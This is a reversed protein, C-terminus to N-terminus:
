VLKSILIDDLRIYHIPSFLPVQNMNVKNLLARIRFSKDKSTEGISIKMAKMTYAIHSSQEKGLLRVQRQNSSHLQNFLDEDRLLCYQLLLLNKIELQAMPYRKMGINNLLNNLWRAAEDYKDVYFCGLARYVYYTIYQPVDNENPEYEEFQLKNEAYLDHDSEMRLARSLKTLLFIPPFTFLEYNSLFRAARENIEEYYKETKRFIKYSHYHQLRLFEFVIKQHYYNSDLSYTDFIQQVNALMDEIPEEDSDLEIHDDSEVFLRHFILMNCKYVYLRHSQYLKSINNLEKIIISLEMKISNEGSLFYSGFKKFYEALLDEAKDFALMFAIHKNYLQKYTYHDPHNIHIRKLIKYVFTLENSLDYDLLEKEIKKLTAIAITRNHTYVIEQINAVKKLLDSRPTEMKNLLYEEIKQNLRSRLTYYANTNVDLEIMVQTDPLLNERMCKLLQASKDAGNDNLSSAIETYEKDSLQRIINNLKSM